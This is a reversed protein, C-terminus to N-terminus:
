KINKNYWDSQEKESPHYYKMTTQVDIHRMQNQVIRINDTTKFFHTCASHRFTHPHLHIRFKLQQNIQNFWYILNHNEVNFANLKEPIKIFYARISPLLSKPFYIKEDRNSKTNRLIFMNNELDVDSRKLNFLENKRIGTYFLIKLIIEVHFSDKFIQPLYSLIYELEKETIFDEILTKEVRKMKPIDYQTKAFTNWMKLSAIMLNFTAVSKKSEILHLFFKQLLENSIEGNSFNFFSKMNYFYASATNESSTNIKLYTKFAELQEM